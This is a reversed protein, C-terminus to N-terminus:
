DTYTKGPGRARAKEGKVSGLFSALRKGGKKLLDLVKGIM